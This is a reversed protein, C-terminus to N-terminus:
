LAKFDLYKRHLTIVPIEKIKDKSFWELQPHEENVELQYFDVEWIKHSFTHTLSMDKKLTNLDLQTQSIEPLRYYGKMLSDKHALTFAIEQNSNILLVVSKHEINQKLKAKVTPYNQVQNHTYALCHKNLPCIECKAQKNCILAGLEMIAQTLIHPKVNEMMEVIKSEITGMFEKAESDLMFLRAFVRKVNGDIAACKEDFCISAIASATYPGVGSLKIIEERNKPFEHNFDSQIQKAAKQINRVRSYYGLGEWTKLLDTENANAVEEISKFIDMWKIYYPILTDIQTQQAMIESIWIRYPERNQRFVLPRHYQIYWSELAKEIILM